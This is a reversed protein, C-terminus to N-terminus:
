NDSVKIATDLNGSEFASDFQIEDGVKITPNMGRFLRPLQNKPKFNSHFKKFYAAMNVFNGNIISDHKFRYDHKM